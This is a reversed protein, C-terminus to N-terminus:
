DGGDYAYLNTKRRECSLTYPGWRCRWGHVMGWTNRPLHEPVSRLQRRVFRCTPLRGPGSVGFEAVYTKPVFILGCYHGHTDEAAAPDPAVAVLCALAAISLAICCRRRRITGKNM